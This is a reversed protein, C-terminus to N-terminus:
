AQRYQALLQDVTQNGLLPLLGVLEALQQVQVYHPDTPELSSLLHELAAQVTLSQRQDTTLNRMLLAGGALLLARIQQVDFGSTSAAPQGNTATLQSGNSPLVREAIRGGLEKLPEPM